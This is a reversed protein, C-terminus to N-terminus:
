DNLHQVAYDAEAPLFKEGYQSTLQDHIAAPSMAMNEQYSKAKALANANWDAQVNDIGYQGAEPSFKEGYASTLQDYIGAKSMFLNNAYSTAKALASKFEVPVAPAPPAVPVAAQTVTPEPAPSTAEQAQSSESALPVPKNESVNNVAAGIGFTMSISAVIAVGGLVIGTIAMGKSQQKSLALIGVVLAAIGIIAGLVPVLGTLFAVIGVVLAAVALGGITKTTPLLPTTPPAGLQTPTSEQNISAPAPAQPATGSPEPTIM